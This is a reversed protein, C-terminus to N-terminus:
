RRAVPSPLAALFRGVAEEVAELKGDFFHDAEPVEVIEGSDGVFARLRSPPGFSDREGVVFLAPVRPRPLHRGAESAVPLGIGIYVDVRPDESVAKLAVAAGFSFGGAAIPLGGRFAAEGLAARFDEIEGEGGGYKGESAGVGRFNFRLTARGARELARAARFVVKSHM